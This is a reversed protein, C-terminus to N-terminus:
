PRGILNALKRPDMEEPEDDPEGGGKLNERPKGNPAKTKSTAPALLAFMEDADAELEDPTDGVLRKAVAKVQKFTTGEPARDAAVQLRRQAAEAKDARSAAEQAAETLRESESKDKDQFEKVQKRFKEAEKNATHLARQIRQFEKPDVNDNSGDRDSAGGDGGDGADNDAGAGDAANQDDVDTNDDTSTDTGNDSDAM